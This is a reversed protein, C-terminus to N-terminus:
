GSCIGEKGGPFLREGSKGRIERVRCKGQRKELFLFRDFLEGPRYQGQSAEGGGGAQLRCEVDRMSDGHMTAAVSGGCQLVQFVAKMDESSGIEDVAVVDPAMSRMLLMMGQVKPCGDLVDTRMGLDNQPIGMFSGGIESREDVVGVQRGPGYANGGSVQRVIDRLLTTKGCGPPSILLTNLFRTDEYLYPMVEGAAGVVEHSIRINLFRIHTMNRVAGKENLVVQGAMGVRHGGPLTIFGQRIENEFAYPSYRCIHSILEDLERGTMRWAEKPERCIEGQSSLFREEGAIRLRVPQGIGLRIEQLKDARSLAQRWKERMYDPFIGAIEKQRDPEKQWAPEKQKTM